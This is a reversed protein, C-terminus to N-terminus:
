VFVNRIKTYPINTTALLLQVLQIIKDKGEFFTIKEWFGPNNLSEKREKRIQNQTNLIHNSPYKNELSDLPKTFLFLEPLLIRIYIYVVSWIDDIPKYKIGNHVNLSIYNPTGIIYESKKSTTDTDTNTDTNFFTAFGFDILVWKKVFIFHAPKIDRHIVGYMHIKELIHIASVFWDNMKQLSTDLDPCIYDELSKGVFYTMILAYHIDNYIGFWFVQPIQTRLGNRSLYELIRTENKLVSMESCKDEIKIAVKEKTHNNEGLYVTGFKGKGILEQVNYKKPIM